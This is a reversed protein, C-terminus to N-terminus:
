CQWFEVVPEFTKTWDYATGLMIPKHVQFHIRKSNATIPETM